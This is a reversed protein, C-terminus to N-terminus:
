TTRQHIPYLIISDNDRSLGLNRSIPRLENGEPDSSLLVRLNGYGQRRLDELMAALEDVDDVTIPASAGRNVPEDARRVIKRRTM